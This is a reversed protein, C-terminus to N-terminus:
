SPSPRYGTLDGILQEMRMYNLPKHLLSIFGSAAVASELQATSYATVLIVPVSPRWRHFRHAFALGDEGDMTYDTIVLDAKSVDASPVGEPRSYELVDHGDDRLMEALGRRFDEEDDVLLITM